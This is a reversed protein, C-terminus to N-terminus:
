SHRRILGDIIHNLQSLKVDILNALKEFAEVQRNKWETEKRVWLILAEGPDRGAEIEQRIEEVDDGGIGVPRDGDKLFGPANLKNDKAMDRMFADMQPLARRGQEHRDMDFQPPPAEQIDPAHVDAELARDAEFAAFPDAQELRKSIDSGAKLAELADDVPAQKVEPLEVSPIEVDVEQIEEPAEQAQPAIQEGTPEIKLQEIADDFQKKQEPTM